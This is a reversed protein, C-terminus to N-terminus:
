YNFFVINLQEKFLEGVNTIDDVDVEYWKGEIKRFKQDETIGNMLTCTYMDSDIHIDTPPLAPFKASMFLAILRCIQLLTIGPRFGSLARTIRNNMNLTETGVLRREEMLKTVNEFDIARSLIHKLAIGTIRRRATGLILMNLIEFTKRRNKRNAIGQTEDILPVAINLEDKILRQLTEQINSSVLLDNDYPYEPVTIMNYMVGLSYIQDDEIIIKIVHELGNTAFNDEFLVNHMDNALKIYANTILIDRKYGTLIYTSVNVFVFSILYCFLKMMIQLYQLIM